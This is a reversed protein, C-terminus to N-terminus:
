AAYSATSKVQTSKNQCFLIRNKEETAKADELKKKSKEAKNMRQMNKHFTEFNGAIIPIPLSLVLVGSVACLTGVLKGLGKSIYIYYQLNSFPVVRERSGSFINDRRQYVKKTLQSEM